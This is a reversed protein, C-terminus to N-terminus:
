SKNGGAFSPEIVGADGWLRELNYYERQEQDFIHVVVSGFDLLVWGVTNIGESHLLRIGQKHLTQEAADCLARTQNPSGATAIIFYDCIMAVQSIDLIKIDRGFKDDIAKAADIVAELLKEDNM